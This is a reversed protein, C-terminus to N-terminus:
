VLFRVFSILCKAAESFFCSATYKQWHGGIFKGCVELFDILLKARLIRQAKMGACFLVVSEVFNSDFRVIPLEVDFRAISIKGHFGISSRDQLNSICFIRMRRFNAAASITTTARTAIMM